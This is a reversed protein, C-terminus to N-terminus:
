LRVHKNQYSNKWILRNQPKCLDIKTVVKSNLVQGNDIDGHLTRNSHNDTNQPSGNNRAVPPRSLSSPLQAYGKALSHRSKEISSQGKIQNELNQKFMPHNYVRRTAKLEKAPSSCRLSSFGEAGVSLVDNSLLGVTLIVLSIWSNM